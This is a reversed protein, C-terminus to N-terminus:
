IQAAPTGLCKVAPKSHWRNAAAGAASCGPPQGHTGGGFQLLPITASFDGGPGAHALVHIGGSAVAFVGPM